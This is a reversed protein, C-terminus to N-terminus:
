LGISLFVLLVVAIILALILSDFSLNATNWYADELDALRRQDLGRESRVREM